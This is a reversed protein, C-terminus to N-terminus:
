KQTASFASRARADLVGDAGFLDLYLQVADLAVACAVRVCTPSIQAGNAWADPAPIRLSGHALENRLDQVLRVGRAASGLTDYPKKQLTFWPLSSLRKELEAVLTVQGFGPLYKTGRNLGACLNNIPSDFEGKHVNALREIANWILILRMAEPMFENLLSSSADEFDLATGCFMVAEDFRATDCEMSKVASALHLWDAPPLWAGDTQAAVALQQTLAWCKKEISACQRAPCTQKVAM